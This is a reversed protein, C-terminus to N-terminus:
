TVFALLTCVPAHSSAHQYGPVSLHATPFGKSLLFFDSCPETSCPVLNTQDLSVPSSKLSHYIDTHLLTAAPRRLSTLPFVSQIEMAVPQRM